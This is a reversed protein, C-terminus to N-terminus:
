PPGTAMLRYIRHGNTRTDAIVYHSPYPLSPAQFLNFWQGTPRDTYQLSYKRNRETDFHITIQNSGLREIHDIRIEAAGL